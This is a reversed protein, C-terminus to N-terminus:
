SRRRDSLDLRRLLECSRHAAVAVLSIWFLLGERVRLPRWEDTSRGSDPIVKGSDVLTRKRFNTAADLKEAQM